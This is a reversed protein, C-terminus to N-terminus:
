RKRHLGKQPIPQKLGFATYKLDWAYNRKAHYNKCCIRINNELNQGELIKDQSEIKKKLCCTLWNVLLHERFSQINQM